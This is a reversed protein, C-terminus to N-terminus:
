KGSQGALDLVSHVLMRTVTSAWTIISLGGWQLRKAGGDDILTIPIQVFGSARRVSGRAGHSATKASALTKRRRTTVHQQALVKRKLSVRCNAHSLRHFLSLAM